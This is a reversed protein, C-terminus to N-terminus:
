YNQYKLIENLYMNNKKDVKTEDNYVAVDEDSYKLNNLGQLLEEKRM